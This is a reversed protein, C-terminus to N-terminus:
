WDDTRFPVCPLGEKNGFNTIPYNTYAYRVAVPKQVKDSSLWVENNVVKADAYYFKKDAGAIYFHKPANNDNTALGSGISGSEFSVKVVAGDTKFNRFEPGRYIVNKVNYTEALANLALRVGVDKKNRPHIDDADGIDMTVAMGTNKLKLVDKQADRFIAYDYATTDNKQWNYPAVQVFYFPQDGNGFLFRWNKIMAINLRAYYDANDKNSEGQYWIFGKLSIRRLPFIMANYLLTPRSLKEFKEFTISNDLPEKAAASTDYSYIIKKLVPDGELTERSTWAQCSTGGITSTILGVPVHLRNFLERGFYYAVASFDKAHPTDCIKWECECDEAPNKAFASKIDLLRIQPYNAAAIEKEYDIVGKLWPLIPRMEMDMNSQGGCLWVEGILVNSLKVTDRESYILIEQPTFTGPTAAPVNIKVEWTNNRYTNATFTKKNWSAKVKVSIGQLGTGWVSLPQSQQIVMGSQLTNAVHFATQASLQWSALLVFCLILISNKIRLM